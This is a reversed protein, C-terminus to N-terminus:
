NDCNNPDTGALLASFREANHASNGNAFLATGIVVVDIGLTNLRQFHTTEIQGDVVTHLAKPRQALRQFSHPDFVGGGAPATLLLCGNISDLVPDLAIIPTAPRLAAHVHVGHSQVLRALERFKERTNIQKSELHLAISRVGLGALKLAMAQPHDLMLHIDLPLSTMSGLTRVLRLSLGLEPAFVGDMMDIHFSEVWPSVANIDEIMCLPNAAYLSPSLASM